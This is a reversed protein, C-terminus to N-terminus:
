SILQRMKNMWSILLKKQLMLLLRRPSKVLLDILKLLTKILLLMVLAKSLINEFVKTDLHFILFALNLYLKFKRKQEYFFNTSSHNYIRHQVDSGKEERSVTKLFITILIRKMQFYHKYKNM